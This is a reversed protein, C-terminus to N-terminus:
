YSSYLLKNKLNPYIRIIDHKVEISHDSYQTKIYNVLNKIDPYGREGIFFRADDILIVHDRINSSFIAELEEFIPCEKDGKATIGGSYHGDLWFITPEKIEKYILSKLITGSNGQIIKINPYRKFRKAANHWLEISLEISFIKLFYKIM